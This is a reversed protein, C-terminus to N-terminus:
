SQAPPLPAVGGGRRVWKSKGVTTRSRGNGNQGKAGNGRGNPSSSSQPDNHEYELGKYNRLRARGTAADYSLLYEPGVPIKGGGGPADIVFQPIALGSTHGRLGEIIEIGKSLPTRLHEAGRVPDCQYLYYPRVRIRLLAHVLQTMTEVSDNVGKLLVSQNNVPVGARLLRDCAAAAEPTVERPHNFHTSLWIPHYKQLMQVLEDDVRQPMTVPVRSGIRIIEVHPIARLKALIRELKPTAFTLPDGGSVIVDRITPTHAIYEVMRDIDIQPIADAYMMRKRTCHRCYMACTNSVVMLARDPYRHTVGPVPSFPEENLPDEEGFDRYVFEDKLPVAQKLIPDNPDSADILSLYYPTIGMRFDSLIQRRVELEDPPSPLYKAIEEVTSIRSRFQWHWDNWLEDPVDPFYYAKGRELPVHMQESPTQEM